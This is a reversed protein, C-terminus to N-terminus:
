CHFASPPAGCFGSSACIDYSYTWIGRPSLSSHRAPPKDRIVMPLVRPSGFSIQYVPSHARELCDIPSNTTRWLGATWLPNVAVPQLCLQHTTPVTRLARGVGSVIERRGRGVGPAPDADVDIDIDCRGAGGGGVPGPYGSALALM